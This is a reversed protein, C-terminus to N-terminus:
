ASNLKYKYAYIGIDLVGGLFISFLLLKLYNIRKEEKEERIVFSPRLAFLLLFVLVPPFAYMFQKNKMNFRFKIPEAVLNDIKSKLNLYNERHVDM